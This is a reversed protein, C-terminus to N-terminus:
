TPGASSQLQSRTAEMASRVMSGYVSNVRAVEEDDTLRLDRRENFLRTITENLAAIAVADPDPRAEQEDLESTYVGILATICERACEYDIAQKQTWQEM